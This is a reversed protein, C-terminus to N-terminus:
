LFQAIEGATRLGSGLASENAPSSEVDQGAFSIRGVQQRALHRMCPQRVWVGNQFVAPQDFPWGLKPYVMSHGWRYLYVAAVDRDFDFNQSALVRNLDDRLSQEYSDFPTSLLQVRANAMQDPPLNNGGYFTLVVPRNPQNRNATVWDAIVFDAWYTSGWYYEDYGLGLNMLPAASNLTVNATVVPALIDQDYAALQASSMLYGCATRATHGQGAFIVAKATARYFTNNARNFYVVSANSSTTEGRLGMCEMRLRVQNNPNDMAALNFAGNVIDMENNGGAIGSPILYKILHRAIGSNGGVYAWEKFYEAGLFSISNYANVQASTGTLADVAYRTYFDSVAPHFGKTQTLYQDLSMQALYDFKPDSLDAPDTPGGTTNYWNQFDAKAALLDNIVNPPYPMSAVGHGYTDLAWRTVGPLAYPTQSDFYYSYFPDPVVLNEWPINLNKYLAVLFDYPIVAYATAASAIEPIPSQDDRNSNGGPTVQGDIILVRAAPNNQLVYYAASLGSEGGGVIIAGYSGGDPIIPFTGSYNDCDSSELKVSNTGWTLRNDRLWHGINFTDRINGVRLVRPDLGISSDCPWSPKTQAVARMPSSGFAAAGAAILTGNLFDRRSIGDNRKKSKSKSM